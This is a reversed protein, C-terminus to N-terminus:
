AADILNCNRAAPTFFCFALSLLDMLFLPSNTEASITHARLDDAAAGIVVPRMFHRGCHELEILTPPKCISRNLLGTSSSSPRAQWCVRPTPVRSLSIGSVGGGKKRWRQAGGCVRLCRIISLCRKGTIFTRVECSHYTVFKTGATLKASFLSLLFILFLQIKRNCGPM